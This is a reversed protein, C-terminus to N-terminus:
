RYTRIHVDFKWTRTSWKYMHTHTCTCTCTYQVQDASELLCLRKCCLVLLHTLSQVLLDRQIDELMVFHEPPFNGALRRLISSVTYLIHQSIDTRCCTCSCLFAIFEILFSVNVAIACLHMSMIQECKHWLSTCTVTILSVHVTCTCVCIVHLSRGEVSIDVSSNCLLHIQYKTGILLSGGPCFFHWYLVVALVWTCTYMYMYLQPSGSCTECQDHCCGGLTSYHCRCHIYKDVNHIYRCTRVHIWWGWIQRVRTGSIRTHWSISHIGTYQHLSAGVCACPICSRYHVWLTAIFSILYKVLNSVFLREQDTTDFVPGNLSALQILCQSTYHFVNDDPRDMCHCLVQQLTYAHTLLSHPSLSSPPLFPPILSRSSCTWYDLTLYLQLLGRPHDSHFLCLRVLLLWEVAWIQHNPVWSVLM